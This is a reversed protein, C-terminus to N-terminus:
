DRQSEPKKEALAKRHEAVYDASVDCIRMIKEDTEGAAIMRDAIKATSQNVGRNIGEELIGAGLDWM